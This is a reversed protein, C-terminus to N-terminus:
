IAHNPMHSEALALAAASSYLATRASADEAELGLCQPALRVYIKLLCAIFLGAHM